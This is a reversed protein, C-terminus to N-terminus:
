FVGTEAGYFIPFKVVHSVMLETSPKQEMFNTLMQLISSFHPGFGEPYFCSPRTELGCHGGSANVAIPAPSDKSPLLFPGCRSAKSERVM